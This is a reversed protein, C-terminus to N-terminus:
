GDTDGHHECTCFKYPRQYPDNHMGIKAACNDHEGKACPGFLEGTAGQVIAARRSEEKDFGGVNIRTVRAAM